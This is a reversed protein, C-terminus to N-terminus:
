ANNASIVAYYKKIMDTMKATTTEDFNLSSSQYYHTGETALAEIKEETTIYPSGTALGVIKLSIVQDKKVSLGNYAQDELATM